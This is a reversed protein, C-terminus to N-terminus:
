EWVGNKTAYYARNAYIIRNKKVELNQRRKNLRSRILERNTDRYDKSRANIESKHTKSYELYRKNRKAKNEQHYKHHYEKSWESRLLAKRAIIKLKETPIGCYGKKRLEYHLKRHCSGCLIVTEDFGEIEEYCIHHHVKAQKVCYACKGLDKFKTM